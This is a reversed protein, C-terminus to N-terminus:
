PLQCMCVARRTDSQPLSYTCHSPSRMILSLIMRTMVSSRVQNYQGALYERGVKGRRVHVGQLLIVNYVNSYSM